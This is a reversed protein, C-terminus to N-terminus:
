GPHKSCGSIFACGQCDRGIKPRPDGALELIEEVRDGIWRHAEARDADLDPEHTAVRQDIVDVVVIRLDM